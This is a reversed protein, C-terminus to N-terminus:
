LYRNSDYKKDHQRFSADKTLLLLDKVRNLVVHSLLYKLYSM